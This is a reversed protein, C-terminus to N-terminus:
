EAYRSARIGPFTERYINLYTYIDPKYYLKHTFGLEMLKKRVRKVDELDLYNRTYVCIVSKGSGAQLATAVKADIGLENKLTSSAITKWVDNIEEQSEYILWKGVLLGSEKALNDIAAEEVRIELKEGIMVIRRLPDPIIKGSYFNALILDRLKRNEAGVPKEKERPSVIRVWPSSRVNTPLNENKSYCESCVLFFEPTRRNRCTKCSMKVVM